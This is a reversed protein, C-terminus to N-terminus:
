VRMSQQIFSSVSKGSYRKGELGLSKIDSLVRGCVCSESSIPM